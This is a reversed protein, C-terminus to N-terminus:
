GRTHPWGIKCEQPLSIPIKLRQLSMMFQVPSFKNQFAAHVRETNYWVLYDILKRNFVDPKLLDAMHFDVFEDQITRNFRELHSNMKPTRPYTHYHILHLRKLEESFHKAFESGNDTLVFQFSFPFVKLCCDFFEKAALSAHSATAWAFGFRTYIDEFTIIYRRSGYIPKEVTDFAVLHGPYLVKFDKPKRLIKRRKLPKIKGFHSVKQPFLRLGGLDKILRGITKSKPCRLNNERCFKELVPHIKEKGLNPHEWRQRKIEALVEEPWLRRRKKKPARSKENLAELNGGGEQLQEKWYFLARRKVNFAEIAAQLGYKEWFVLVKAKQLAKQTIMYRYRLADHYVTLFGKIGTYKCHIKNYFEM